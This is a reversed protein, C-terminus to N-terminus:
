SENFSLLLKLIGLLKVDCLKNKPDKGNTGKGGGGWSLPHISNAGGSVRAM